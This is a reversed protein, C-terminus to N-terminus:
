RPANIATVNGGHPFGIVTSAAVPTGALLEACRKLCYPKICASAVDLCTSEM